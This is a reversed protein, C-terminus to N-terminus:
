QPVLAKVLVVAGDQGLVQDVIGADVLASPTTAAAGVHAALFEGGGTVAPQFVLRLRQGDLDIALRAPSGGGHSVAWEEALNALDMLGRRLAEIPEAALDTRCYLATALANISRLSAVATGLEVAAALHNAGQRATRCIELSAQIRKALGEPSFPKTVYDDAGTEYGHRRDVNRDLATLMLIPILCTDRAGKLLRCLEYGSLGPLMLDMLIAEPREQAILQLAHEGSRAQVPQFGYASLVEAILNNMDPEDEVILVHPPGNTM